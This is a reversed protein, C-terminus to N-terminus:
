ASISGGTGTVLDGVSRDGAVLMYLIELRKGNAFLSVLRASKELQAEVVPGLPSMATAGQLTM